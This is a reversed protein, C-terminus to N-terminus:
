MKIRSKVANTWLIVCHNFNASLNLYKRTQGRAWLLTLWLQNGLAMDFWIKATKVSQSQVAQRPLRNWHKRQERGDPVFPYVGRMIERKWSSCDSKEAKGWIFSTGLQLDGECGKLPRVEAVGHRKQIPSGLIPDLVRSSGWWHQTSPLSWRWLRSAVSKRICGLSGSDKHCPCTNVKTWWSGEQFAGRWISMLKNQQILNRKELQLDKRKWEVTNKGATHM